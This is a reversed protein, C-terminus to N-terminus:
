RVNEINGSFVKYKFSCHHLFHGLSWRQHSHNLHNIERLNEQREAEQGTFNVFDCACRIESPVDAGFSYSNIFPIGYTVKTVLTGRNYVHFQFDVVSVCLVRLCCTYSITILDNERHERHRQPSFLSKWRWSM